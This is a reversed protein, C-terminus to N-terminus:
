TKEVFVHTDNIFGMMLNGLMTASMQMQATV